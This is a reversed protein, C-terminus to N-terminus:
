RNKMLTADLPNLIQTLPKSDVSTPKAYTNIRFPNGRSLASSVLDRERNIVRTFVRMAVNVGVGDLRSEAQELAANHSCPMFDRRLMERSVKVFHAETEIVALILEKEAIRKGLEHERRVEFVFVECGFHM